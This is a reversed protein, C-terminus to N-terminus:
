EDKTYAHYLIHNYIINNNIQTDLSVWLKFDMWLMTIVSNFAAQIPITPDNMSQWLDDHDKLDYTVFSFPKEIPMFEPSYPPHFLVLKGSDKFLQTVHRVHHISCNDLVAISKPNEGDFPLMEPILSGRVHIYDFFKDGNVSGSMLEVAVIGSTSMAAIASIRTGRHLWWHDVASEGRMAYGFRRTHDKNSCGTENIFVFCDRHYMQIKAMYEGRYQLSRQKAAHQLKKRIFGHKHIVKCVASPSICKGYVDEVAQCLESVHLYLSPSEIILGIIM